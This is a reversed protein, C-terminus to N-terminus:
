SVEPLSQFGRIPDAEIISILIGEVDTVLMMVLDDDLFSCPKGVEFKYLYGRYTIEVNKGAKPLFLGNNHMSNRVNRWLELTPIHIELNLRKLLWIYISQFEALGSACAVADLARVYIRFSSEVAFFLQHILMIRLSMLFENGAAEVSKQTYPLMTNTKWWEVKSLHREVFVLGLMTSTLVNSCKNFVTLRADDENWGHATHLRERTDVLSHQLQQISRGLQEPTM